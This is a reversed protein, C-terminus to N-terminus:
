KKTAKKHKLLRRFQFIKSCLEADSHADALGRKALREMDKKLGLEAQLRMMRLVLEVQAVSGRAM